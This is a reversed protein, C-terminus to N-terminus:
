IKQTGIKSMDDNIYIQHISIEDLGFNSLGIDGRMALLIKGTRRFPEMPDDSNSMQSLGALSKIVNPGGYFLAGKSVKRLAVVMEDDPSVELSSNNEKSKQLAEFLIDIFLSYVEVKKDRHAESIARSRERWFTVLAVGIAAMGAVLSAQISSSAGSFTDVFWVLVWICVVLLLILLLFGASLKLKEM